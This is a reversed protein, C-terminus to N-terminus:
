RGRVLSLVETVASAAATVSSLASDIAATNAGGAGYTNLAKAVQNINSGARKLNAHAERLAVADVEISPAESDRLALHRVYSSVTMASRKARSRIREMERRTVRVEIRADRCAGVARGRETTQAHM